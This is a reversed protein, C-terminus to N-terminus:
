LLGYDMIMNISKNLFSHLNEILFEYNDRKYWSNLNNLFNRKAHVYVWFKMWRSILSSM